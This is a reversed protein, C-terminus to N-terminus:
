FGVCNRRGRMEYEINDCVDVVRVILANQRM